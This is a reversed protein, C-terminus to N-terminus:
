EKRVQAKEFVFPIGARFPYITFTGDHWNKICHRSNEKKMKVKAKDKFLMDIHAPSFRSNNKVLQINYCKETEIVKIVIDYENKGFCDKNICQYLGNMLDGDSTTATLGGTGHTSPKKQEMQMLTFKVTRVRGFTARLREPLFIVIKVDSQM